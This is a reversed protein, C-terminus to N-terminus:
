AKISNRKMLIYPFYIEHIGGLFHIIVAGPATQKATGKDFLWYALLIGLGPGPNTELLISKGADAAQDIGLPSLIGHNIANNLFLVKAPEIFINTLPLLNANIIAEVVSITFWEVM